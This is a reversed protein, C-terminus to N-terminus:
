PPLVLMWQRRRPSQFGSHVVLSSYPGATKRVSQFKHSLLFHLHRRWGVSRSSRRQMQLPLNVDWGIGDELQKQSEIMRIAAAMDQSALQGQKHQRQDHHDHGRYRRSSRSRRRDPIAGLSPPLQPDEDPSATPIVSEPQAEQAAADQAIVHATYRCSEHAFEPSVIQDAAPFPAADPAVQMGPVM